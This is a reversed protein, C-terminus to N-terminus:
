HRLPNEVHGTKFRAHHEGPRSVDLSRRLEPDAVIEVDTHAPLELARGRRDIEQLEDILLCHRRRDRPSEANCTGPKAFCVRLRDKCPEALLEAARIAIEEAL